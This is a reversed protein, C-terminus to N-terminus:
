INIHKKLTIASGIVGIGLGIALVTPVLMNFVTSIEVFSFGGTFISFQSLMYEIAYDYVFYVIVLPIIAGILGITIGEVFFPTKVFIDTAGMLKMISIEDRRVTIGISVTNSILFISVAIFIIVIAISIYGVISTIELLNKTTSESSNVTRIGDVKKLYEVLEDQMAIDSLYIEYSASNALPNDDAFGLALDEYDKFYEDKYNAWAEEPSTYHIYSVEERATILDAISNRKEETIDQEFFVTVCIDKQTQKVIHNFNIVIAFMVGFLFLCATMTAISALSFLRNRFINAVGQKINYGWSRIKM